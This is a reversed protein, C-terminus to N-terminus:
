LSTAGLIASSLQCPQLVDCSNNLSPKPTSPINLMDHAEVKHLKLTPKYKNKIASTVLVDQMKM